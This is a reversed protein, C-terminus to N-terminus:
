RQTCSFGAVESLMGRPDGLKAANIDSLLGARDPPNISQWFPGAPYPALITDIAAMARSPDSGRYTRWEQGWACFWADGAWAEAVGPAYVTNAHAFLKEVDQPSQYGSPMTLKALEARMQDAAQGASLSQGGPRSQTLLVIAIAGGIVVAFTLLISARRVV